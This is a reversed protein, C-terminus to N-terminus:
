PGFVAIDFGRSSVSDGNSDEVQGSIRGSLNGDAFEVDVYSSIGDVVGEPAFHSLELSGSVASFAYSIEARAASTAVVSVPWSEDLRGDDTVLGLQMDLVVVDDCDGLGLETEPATEEGTESDVWERDEFTIEGVQGLSLTLQTGTGDVWTLPTLHTGSVAGLVEEAVFGLPSEELADLVTDQVSQCVLTEEGVQGGGSPACAGLGLTLALLLTRRNPPLYYM